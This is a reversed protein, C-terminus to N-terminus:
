KKSRNRRMPYNSLPFSFTEVGRMSSSQLTIRTMGTENIPEVTVMEKQNAYRTTVSRNAIINVVESMNQLKPSINIFFRLMVAINRIKKEMNEEKHLVLRAKTVNNAPGWVEIYISRDESFGVWSQIGHNDITEIWEIFGDLNTKVTDFTIGTGVSNTQKELPHSGEALTNQVNNSSSDILLHDYGRLVIDKLSSLSKETKKSNTRKADLVELMDLFQAARLLLHKHTIASGKTKVRAIINQNEESTLLPPSNYYGRKISSQNSFDNKKGSKAELSLLIDRAKMGRFGDYTDYIVLDRLTKAFAVIGVLFYERNVDNSDLTLLYKKVTEIAIDDAKSEELQLYPLTNLYNELDDKWSYIGKDASLHALEHAAILILYPILSISPNYVNKKGYEEFITVIMGSTKDLKENEFWEETQYAEINGYRLYTDIVELTHLQEEYMYQEYESLTGNKYKSLKNKKILSHTQSFSLQANYSSLVLFGLFKNDILIVNPPISLFNGQVRSVLNKSRASLKISKDLIKRQDVVYINIVDDRYKSNIKINKPLNTHPLVQLFVNSILSNYRNDLYQGNVLEDLASHNDVTLYHSLWFYRVLLLCVILLIFYNRVSPETSM